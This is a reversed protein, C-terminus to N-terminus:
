YHAETTTHIDRTVIAKELSIPQRVAVIHAADGFVRDFRDIIKLLFLCEQVPLSM